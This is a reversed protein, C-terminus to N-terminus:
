TTASPSVQQYGEELPLGLTKCDETNIWTRPDSIGYKLLACIGCQIECFVKQFTKVLISSAEAWICGFCMKCAQGSVKFCLLGFPSGVAASNRSLLVGLHERPRELTLNQVWITCSLTTSKSSEPLTLNFYNRLRPRRIHWTLFIFVISVNCSISYLFWMLKSGWTINLYILWVLNGRWEYCKFM